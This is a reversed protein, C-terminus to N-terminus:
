WDIFKLGFISLSFAPIDVYDCTRALYFWFGVFYERLIRVEKYSTIAERSCKRVGETDEQAVKTL